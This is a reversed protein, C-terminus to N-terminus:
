SEHQFHDFSRMYQQTLEAPLVHNQSDILDIKGFEDHSGTKTIVGIRTLPVKLEQSIQSIIQRNKEPATFCLEYDDGGKLTCLRRLEPSLASVIQSTPIQDIWIDANWKSAILIHKLDGLLGDSLDIAAHAIGLLAIGLEVRPTPCHLRAQISDLVQSPQWEGREVGLLYRADGVVNSLWIDDGLQAQSRRLSQSNPVHGFATISITLPGQTTDGGILQCDHYDALQHLGKAFSALWPANVYPLALSLTYAVPKAGIAALDSLNVALCKHGLKEPDASSFFHRNEVLMDTTIALCYGKPPPNILACDDGIGLLVSNASSIDHPKHNGMLSQRNFFRAILDFEGLQNSDEMTM